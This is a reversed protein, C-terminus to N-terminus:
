VALKEVHIHVISIKTIKSEKKWHYAHIFMFFSIGYLFFKLIM